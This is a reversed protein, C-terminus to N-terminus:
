YAHRNSVVIEFKQNVFTYRNLNLFFSSLFSSVIFTLKILRTILQVGKRQLRWQKANKAFATVLIDGLRHM